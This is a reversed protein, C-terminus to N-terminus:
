LEEGVSGTGGQGLGAVDGVGAGGGGLWEVGGSWEVMGAAVEAQEVRRMETELGCM